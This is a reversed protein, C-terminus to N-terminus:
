EKPLLAIIRDVAAVEDAETSLSEVRVTRHAQEYFPRRRSLTTRVHARIGEEDLGAVTPRSERVSFLRSVLEEESAELYIVVGRSCMLEMNDDWTAMGGGTAIVADQVQSVEILIVKERKRFKDIGCSSMMGSISSHYKQELYLDTDIFQWGLRDALRRGITSKGVATFGVLFVPKM